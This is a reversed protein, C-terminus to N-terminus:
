SIPSANNSDWLLGCSNIVLYKNSDQGTIISSTSVPSGIWRLYTSIGKWGNPSALGSRRAYPIPFVIHKLNSTSVSRDVVAVGPVVQFVTPPTTLVLAPMTVWGQSAHGYYMWTINRPSFTTTAESTLNTVTFNNASATGLIFVVADNAYGDVNVSTPEIEDMILCGVNASLDGAGYGAIYFGYGDVSSAMFHYVASRTTTWTTPNVGSALIVQEDVATPRTTAGGGSFHAIISYSIYYDTDNTSRQVLIERNGAPDRIVFWGSNGWTAESAINDGAGFTTGNSSRSVSWGPGNPPATKMFEKWRFMINKGGTTFNNVSYILAM